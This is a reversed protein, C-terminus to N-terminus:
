KGRQARRLFSDVNARLTPTLDKRNLVAHVAAVTRESTLDLVGLAIVCEEAVSPSRDVLGERLADLVKVSKNGAMALSAAAASRVQDDEDSSLAAAVQLIGESPTPRHRLASSIAAIRVMPAPDHLLAIIAEIMPPTAAISSLAFVCNARVQANADRLCELLPREFDSLDTGPRTSILQLMGTATVRVTTNEDALATVLEPFERRLLKHGSLEEVAAPLLTTMRDSNLTGHRAADLLMQTKSVQAMGLWPVSLFVTLLCYRVSKLM